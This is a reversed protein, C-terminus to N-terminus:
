GEPAICCVVLQAAMCFAVWFTTHALLWRLLVSPSHFYQCTPHLPPKQSALPSSPSYIHPPSPLDLNATKRLDFLHCGALSADHWRIVWEAAQAAHSSPPAEDPASRHTNAMFCSCREDAQLTPPLIYMTKDM